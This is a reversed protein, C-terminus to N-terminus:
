LRLRPSPRTLRRSLRGSRIKVRALLQAVQAKAGVRRPVVGNHVWRWVSKPDFGAAEALREESIGARQM